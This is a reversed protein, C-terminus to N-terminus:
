HGRFSFIGNNIEFRETANCNKLTSKKGRNLLVLAICQLVTSLLVYFELLSKRENHGRYSPACRNENRKIYEKERAKTMFKSSLNNCFLDNRIGYNFEYQAMLNIM